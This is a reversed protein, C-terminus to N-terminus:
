LKFASWLTEIKPPLAIVEIAEKTIPHFFVVRRAHLCIGPYKNTRPYGYKLDGKIPCGIHALQARIQHHRGTKLLVELLYYNDSKSIVEYELVAKKSGVVETDHCYSKNQKQNRVLYHNLEDKERSPKNKVIAWYTKKVENKRFQENLRSLSKSRKAFLIVGSVPRDLRHTVGLFVEGPKNYKKKIYSKVKDGLTEDRTEDGQTIESVAKNVAIVHNDEFLVDM